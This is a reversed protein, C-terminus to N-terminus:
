AFGRMKHRSVTKGEVDDRDYHADPVLESKAPLPEAGVTAEGKAIAELTAMREEHLKSDDATVMHRFERLRFVAEHACIWKIAASAEELDIAHRKQVRTNILGQAYEIAATVVSSNVGGDREQDSLEVLARKGGAAIQVDMETCYAM